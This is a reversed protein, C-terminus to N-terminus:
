DLGALRAFPGWYTALRSFGFAVLGLAIAIACARSSFRKGGGLGSIADLSTGSGIAILPGVFLLEKLDKFIGSSARLSVLVLFTLGYVAMWRFAGDLGRRKVVFIGCLALAPYGLGFFLPIRRLADFLGAPAATSEGTAASAMAPLIERFFTITFSRYLLGVTLLGVMTWTALILVAKKREWLALIATFISLNILSSVYTLSALIGSLGYTIVPRVRVVNSVMHAAVGMTVLELLHGAITPWMSLLLRSSMPPLFAILLSAWLAAGNGVLLKAILYVLPLELAGALVAVHKMVFELEREDVDMWTFPLFFIPSYPFAYAKGGVYRPYATNMQQQTWVGREEINGVASSFIDVYVRHQRTDAYYYSPHFLPAAKFFYGALFLLPVWRSPSLRRLAITVMATALLGTVVIQANVHVMGFPDWAFWVAQLGAISLGLMFSSGPSFGLAIAFALTGLILARPQWTSLPLQLDAGELRLWDVAIGLAEPSPDEVTLGIRLEAGDLIVPIRETRFRGSRATTSHVRKGNLFVQLRAHDPLFRAYRLHLTGRSATGLPPLDIFAEEGSWRFSIPPREESETFGTLYTRTNPGIDLDLPRTFYSAGLFALEAAGFLAVTAALIPGIRQAGIRTM